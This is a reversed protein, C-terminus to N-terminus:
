LVRVRRDVRAWAQDATLVVAADLVHATALVLADPLHLASHRARLQAALRAIERSLPEVQIALDAVFAEFSAVAEAGERSPWVLAESYASAPLVLDDAQHSRFAAVAAGHHADARERFAIVVSADLVVLAAPRAVRAM